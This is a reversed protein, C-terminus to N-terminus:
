ELRDSAHDLGVALDREAFEHQERQAPALDLLFWLARRRHLVAADLRDGRLCGDHEREEGVGASAPHGRDVLPHGTKACRAPPLPMPCADATSSALPPAVTTTEPLRASASESVAASILCAPPFPSVAATSVLSLCATSRAAAAIRSRWPRMSTRTLQAPVLTGFRKKLSRSAASQSRTTPM